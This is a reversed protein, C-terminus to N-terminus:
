RKKSKKRQVVNSAKEGMKTAEQELNNEDNISKGNLEKTPKVRNEKQQVVHWAEHPLHKEQGSSLHIDNGQAYAHAQLQAPKNSNYHVNVEDMSHGSLSEIGSKLKDPLGKSNIKSDTSELQKIKTSSNAKKQLVDLSHNSKANLNSEDSQYLRKHFTSKNKNSKFKSNFM